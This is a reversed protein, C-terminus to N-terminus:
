PPGLIGRKEINKYTQVSVIIPLLKSQVHDRDSWKKQIKKAQNTTQRFGSQNTLTFQTQNTLKIHMPDIHNTKNVVKYATPGHTHISILNHQQVLNCNINYQHQLM